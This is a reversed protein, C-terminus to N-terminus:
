SEWRHRSMCHVNTTVTKLGEGVTYTITTEVDTKVEPGFHQAYQNAFKHVALLAEEIEEEITRNPQKQGNTSQEESM